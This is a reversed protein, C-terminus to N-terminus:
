TRWVIPILELSEMRFAGAGSLEVQWLGSEVGKALKTRKTEMEGVGRVEYWREIKDATITKLVMTNDARFGIFAEDVTAKNKFVIQGTRVKWNIVAGADDGGDLRYLGNENAGLYVKSFKAMSNFPYDQYETVGFNRTNMVWGAFTEAGIGFSLAFVLGETLLDRLRAGSMPAADVTVAETVPFLFRMVMDPTDALLATELQSVIVRYLDYAVPTINVIEAADAGKGASNIDAIALTLSVVAVAQMLTDVAGSALLKEIVIVAKPIFTSADDTASLGEVVIQLWSVVILERLSLQQTIIHNFQGGAVPGALVTMAETINLTQAVTLVGTATLTEIAERLIRFDFAAASTGTVTSKATHQFSGLAVFVPLFDALEAIAHNFYGNPQESYDFAGAADTVFDNYQMGGLLASRTLEVALTQTDAAGGNVASSGYAYDIAPDTATITIVAGIASAEYDPSADIVAALATATAADDAAIATFSFATPVGAVDLTVTFVDGIEAAAVTATIQKSASGQVSVTAIAADITGADTVATSHTYDTPPGVSTVTITGGAVSASFKAAADILAELGLAVDNLTVDGALVTYSYAVGDLTITYIDGAEVTGSLTFDVVQGATRGGCASHAALEEVAPLNFTGLDSLPAAAYVKEEILCERELTFIAGTIVTENAGVIIYSGLNVSISYLDELTGSSKPEWTVGLDASLGLEGNAGVALFVGGWAVGYLNEGSFPAQLTWTIGDPSTLIIGNQGVVAWRDVGYASGFTVGYLANTTGSSRQTWNAGGDVSTLILGNAGVAVQMGKGNDYIKFISDAM